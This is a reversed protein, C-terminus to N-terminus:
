ESMVSNILAMIEDTPVLLNGSQSIGVIKGKLNIVPAGNFSEDLSNMIKIRKQTKQETENGSIYDDIFGAVIDVAVSNDLAIIKAGLEVKESIAFALIPLNTEDIKVIAFGTSYDEKILEASYIKGDNLKIYKLFDRKTNEIDSDIKDESATEEKDSVPEEKEANNINEISTIIIGDSTLIIGAGKHIFENDSDESAEVIQVVAPLAKKIAEVVAKDESITVEKTIEIITTRENVKKFFEYRNLQPYHTLFYPITFRDMLIGGAGGVILVFLFFVTFSVSKRFGSYKCKEKKVVGIDETENKSKKFFDETADLNNEQKSRLSKITINKM